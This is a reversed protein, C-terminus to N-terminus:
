VPPYALGHTAHRPARAHHRREANAGKSFTPSRADGRARRQWQKVFILFKLVAYTHIYLRIYVYVYVHICAYMCVHIGTYTYVHIYMYVHMYMYMYMYMYM